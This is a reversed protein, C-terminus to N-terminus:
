QPIGFDYQLYHSIKLKGKTFNGKKGVYPPLHSVVKLKSNTFSLSSTLGSATIASESYSEAVIISYITFLRPTLGPIELFGLLPAGEVM